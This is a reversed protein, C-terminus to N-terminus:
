ASCCISAIEAKRTPTTPPPCRPTSGRTRAASMAGCNVTSASRRAQGNAGAGRSGPRSISVIEWNTTSDISALECRALARRGLDVSREARSLHPRAASRIGGSSTRIAYPLNPLVPSPVDTQSDLFGVPFNMGLNLHVQQRNGRLLVYMTSLTIDGPNTFATRFDGGGALDYNLPAHQFPLQGFFTFDDTLGYQVILLHRQINMNAPVFPFTAAISSNSVRHTGVFNRDFAQYDFRYSFLFQGNRLTADQTVGVPALGDPRWLDIAQDFTMDRNWVTEADIVPARYQRPADPQIIGAPPAALSYDFVMPTARPPSPQTYSGWAAPPPEPPPVPLRTAPATQGYSGEEPSKQVLVPATSGAVAPMALSVAPAQAAATAAPATSGPAAPPTQASAIAIVMGMILMTAAALRRITATSTMNSQGPSSANRNPPCSM